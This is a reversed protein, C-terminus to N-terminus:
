DMPAALTVGAERYYRLAGPHFPLIRNNVANAARTAAAVPTLLFM